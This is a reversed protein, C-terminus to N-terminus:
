ARKFEPRRDKDVYGVSELDKRATQRVLKGARDLVRGATDKTPFPGAAGRGPSMYDRM